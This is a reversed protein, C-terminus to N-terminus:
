RVSFSTGCSCSSSAQPNKVQFSAGDMEEIYDIMSGALFPLSLSDVLLGVGDTLIEVDDDEPTDALEFHYQFGACGGGDVLVRLRADPRGQRARIAAVRAAAAPSFAIEAM